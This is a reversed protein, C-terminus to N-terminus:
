GGLARIAEQRTAGPHVSQYDLIALEERARQASGTSEKFMPFAKPGSRAQPITGDANTQVIRRGKHDDCRENDCEFTHAKGGGPLPTVTITKCPTQCRPCRSAMEFTTEAM